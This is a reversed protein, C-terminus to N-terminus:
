RLAFMPQITSREPMFCFQNESIMEVERLWPKIIREWLKMTHSMFKMGKFNECKLRDEEGKAM